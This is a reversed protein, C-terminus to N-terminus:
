WEILTPEPSQKSPDGIKLNCATCCAVMYAPDDGTIAKGKTHHVCTAKYTCVDPLQMQCQYSDRELVAKNIKRGARTSGGKWAQSM